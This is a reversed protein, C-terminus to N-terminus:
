PPPLLTVQSALISQGRLSGRVRLRVGNALMEPPGGVFEASGADVLVGRVRFRNVSDFATATGGLTFVTPEGPQVVAVSKAFVSGDRLSGIVAVRQGNGTVAGRGTATSADVPLGEIMFRPGSAWDASFGETYIFGLNAPLPQDNTLREVTWLPDQALARSSSVRVLMGNAIQVRLTVSASAYSVRQQGIIFTQDALNLARVRGRLVRRLAAPSDSELRQLRTAQVGGQEDELAGHLEVVDGVQLAQASAVGDIVTTLSSYYATSGLVSLQQSAPDTGTVVGRAAPRIQIESATGRLGQEDISGEISVWMGLRLSDAPLADGFGNSLRANKTEFEIGDIVVADASLGRVM